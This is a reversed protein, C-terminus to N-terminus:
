KLKKSSGAFNMKSYPKIILYETVLLMYIFSIISYLMVIYACSKKCQWFEVRNNPVLEDSHTHPSSV